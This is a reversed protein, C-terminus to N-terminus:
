PMYPLERPHAISPILHAPTPQPERPRLQSLRAKLDALAKAAEHETRYVPTTLTLAGRFGSRHRHVIGERIACAHHIDPGGSRM